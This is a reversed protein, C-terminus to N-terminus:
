KYRCSAKFGLIYIYFLINGIKNHHHKLKGCFDGLLRRLIISYKQIYLNSFFFVSIVNGVVELVLSFVMIELLSPTSLFLLTHIALSLVLTRIM